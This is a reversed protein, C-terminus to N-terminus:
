FYRVCRVKRNTTKSITHWSNNKTDRYYAEVSSRETSSWYDGSMGIPAKIMDWLELSSPLYWDTYTGINLRDCISAAYNGDGYAGVIVSTNTMGSGYSSGAANVETAELSWPFSGQDMTSAILGHEGSNDVFVIIGGYAVDGIEYRSTRETTKFTKQNGYVVKESNAAYARVYYTTNASLKSCLVGTTEGEVFNLNSAGDYAEITPNAKTSYCHGMITYPSEPDDVIKQGVTASTSTIESVDLTIVAGKQPLNTEDELEDEKNDCSAFSLAALFIAPFLYHTTLKKM